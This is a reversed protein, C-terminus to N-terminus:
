KKSQEAAKTQQEIAEKLTFLLAKTRVVSPNENKPDPNYALVKQFDALAEEIKGMNLLIEGRNALANVNWPQLRLAIEFCALADDFKEQKQRISGLVTYFYPDYPDLYVLGEYIVKAEDLKGQQLLTYGRKAILYLEDRTLGMLDSATIDGYIFRAAYEEKVIPPMGNIVEEEISKSVEAEDIEKSEEGGQFEESFFYHHFPPSWKEAEFHELLAHFGGLYQGTLSQKLFEKGKAAELMQQFEKKSKAHRLLFLTGIQFTLEEPKVKEVLLKLLTTKQPLTLKRMSDDDFILTNFPLQDGKELGEKAERYAEELKQDKKSKTVGGMGPQRLSLQQISKQLENSELSLGRLLNFQLMIKEICYGIIPGLAKKKGEATKPMGWGGLGMKPGPEKTDVLDLPTITKPERKEAM